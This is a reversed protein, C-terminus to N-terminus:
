CRALTCGDTGVLAPAVGGTLVTEATGTGASSEVEVGEEPVPITCHTHPRDVPPSRM